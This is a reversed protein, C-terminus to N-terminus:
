LAALFALLRTQDESSLATFAERSDSAERFHGDLISAELSSASGDHLYPATLSVGWLPPTKYETALVGADQEVSAMEDAAIDHLLLDTYAPVGGLDPLHCSACGVETFLSEGALAEESLTGQTPPMLNAVYFVLDLYPTDALEPDSVQDGDDESTFISLSPHITIGIEDLLADATFDALIPVEAKWSYRGIQADDGVWRVRGSIGDGDLDEPDENALIEQNSIQGLLGLGLISPPNRAEIVNAEAEM